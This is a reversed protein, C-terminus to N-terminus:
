SNRLLNVYVRLQRLAEAAVADWAVVVSFRCAGQLRLIVIRPYAYAETISCTIWQTTGAYRVACRGAAGLELDAISRRHCRLAQQCLQRYLSILLMGGLLWDLGNPLPMYWLLLGAGLGTVLLIVTLFISVKINIILSKDYKQLM